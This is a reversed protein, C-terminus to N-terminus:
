ARQGIREYFDAPYTPAPTTARDLSAWFDGDADLTLAVLQDRLEDRSRAATL